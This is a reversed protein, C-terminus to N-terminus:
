HALSKSKKMGFGFAAVLGAGVAAALFPATVGLWALLLGFILQGLASGADGFLIHLASGQRNQHPELQDFILAKIVPATGRAFVGLMFCLLYLIPSSPLFLLCMIVGVM